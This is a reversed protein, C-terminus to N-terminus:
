PAVQPWMQPSNDQGSVSTPPGLGVTPPGVRSCTTRPQNLFTASCSGHLSCPPSCCKKKTRGESEQRATRGSEGWPQATISHSDLVHKRGLNSQTTTNILTASFCVLGSLLDPYPYMMQGCFSLPVFVFRLLQLSFLPELDCHTVCEAEM